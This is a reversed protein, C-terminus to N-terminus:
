RTFANLRTTTANKTLFKMPSQIEVRAVANSDVKHATEVKWGAVEWGRRMEGRTSRSRMGMINVSRDCKETPVAPPHNNPGEKMTSCIGFKMDSSVQRILNRFKIPWQDPSKMRWEHVKAYAADNTAIETLRASLEAPSSFDRLDIIADKSPIYEEMGDWGIYIPISGRSLADWIKETM